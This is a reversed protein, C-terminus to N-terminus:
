VQSPILTRSDYVDEIKGSRKDIHVTYIIDKKGRYVFSFTVVYIERRPHIETIVQGQTVAVDYHKPLSFGRRELESKASEVLKHRDFIRPANREFQAPATCGISLFCIIIYAIRNM